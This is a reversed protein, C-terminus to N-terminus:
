DLWNEFRLRPVQSFNRCRHIEALWGRLEEEVTIITLAAESPISKLRIALNKGITSDRALESFHNTDLVLL